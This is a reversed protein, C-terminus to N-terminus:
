EIVEDAAVLLTAPVTLGIAKASRLNVVLEFKNPREVPLDAPKAGNLIKDVFVAARKWMDVHSPGYSMMGGAETMPRFEGMVPIRQRVGFEAIKNRQSQIMPDEMTVIAQASAQAASHLAANIDNVDRIALSQLRLGLKAAAPEMEKLQLRHGAGNVNWLVAVRVIGPLLEKILQLRKASQDTAVLTLGTINGGPHALSVVYGAGVADGVSAMVIPVSSTASRLADIAESSQTVIVNCNARILEAALAPLRKPDGDGFRKEFAITQGEIWGIQRLTQSFTGIRRLSEPDNEGLPMLIGVRRMRDSQQAYATLSWTASSALLTIFERRRM